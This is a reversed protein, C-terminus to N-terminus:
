VQPKLEALRADVRAAQEILAVAIRTIRGNVPHSLGDLVEAPTACVTVTRRQEEGPKNSRGVWATVWTGTTTAWVSLETWRDPDRGHVHADRSDLTALLWGDFELPKVVPALEVTHSTPEGTIQPENM